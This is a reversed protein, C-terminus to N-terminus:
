LISLATLAKVRFNRYDKVALEDQSSVILLQDAEEDAFHGWSRENIKKPKRGWPQPFCSHCHFHYFYYM